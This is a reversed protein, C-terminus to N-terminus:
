AVVRAAYLKVIKARARALRMKVASENLGYRKQLDIISVGELYKQQLFCRSEEPLESLLEAIADYQRDLAMLAEYDIEDDALDYREDAPLVGYKSQNTLYDICENHAIRFLWSVFAQPERLRDMKETVRLFIDQTLDEAANRDKVHTYCYQLVKAHYRQYLLALASASQEQQFSSVLRANSIHVQEM